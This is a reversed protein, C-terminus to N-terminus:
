NLRGYKSLSHVLHNVEHIGSEDYKKFFKDNINKWFVKMDFPIKLDIKDEKRKNHDDDGDSEDKINERTNM